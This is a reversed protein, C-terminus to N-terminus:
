RGAADLADLRALRRTSDGKANVDGRLSAVTLRTELLPRYSWDALVGRDLAEAAQAMADPGGQLTLAALSGGLAHWARVDHPHRAALPRAAEVADRGLERKRDPDTEARAQARIAGVLWFGYRAQFPDLRVAAAYHERAEALRGANQASMGRLCQRDACLLWATILAGTIGSARTSSLLGASRRGNPHM